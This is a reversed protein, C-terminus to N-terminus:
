VDEKVEKHTERLVLECKVSIGQVLRYDPDDLKNKLLKIGISCMEEIDARITTLPTQAYSSFPIDNIGIVSIDDPVSIGNKGFESIAGIAIEDYACLVADPLDKLLRSAGDRGAEEFRLNSTYIYEECFPLDLEKVAKKFHDRKSETLQEGMYGIKKHGTEKLYKLAVYIGQYLEFYVCDYQNSPVLKLVPLPFGEGYDVGSFSIVASMGTDCILEKATELEKEKDFDTIYVFGKGGLKEIKECLCSVYCSYHISIIEPCFIAVNFRGDKKYEKKLKRKNEFYGHKVAIQRIREATEASIERSGGLAKSVTSVSVNAEKAIKQLTM